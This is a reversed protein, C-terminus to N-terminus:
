ALEKEIEALWRALDEETPPEDAKAAESIRAKVRDVARALKPAASPAIKMLTERASDRDAWMKATTQTEELRLIEDILNM